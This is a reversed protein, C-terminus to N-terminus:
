VLTPHSPLVLPPLPPLLSAQLAGRDLFASRAAAVEPRDGPYGAMLLRVAGEWEGKLLKAGM